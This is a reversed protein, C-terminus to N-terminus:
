RSGYLVELFGGGMEDFLRPAAFEFLGLGITGLGIVILIIGPPLGPRRVM